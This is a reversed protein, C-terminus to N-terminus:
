RRVGRTIYTAIRLLSPEARPDFTKRGEFPQLEVSSRGFGLNQQADRTYFDSVTPVKIFDASVRERKVITPRRDPLSKHIHFEVMRM